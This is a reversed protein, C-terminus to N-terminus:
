FCDHSDAIAAVATALPDGGTLFSPLPDAPAGPAPPEPLAAPGTAHDGAPDDIGGAAVAPDFPDAPEALAFDFSDAPAAIDGGAEEGGAEGPPTEEGDERGEEAPAPDDPTEPTDGAPPGYRDAAERAKEEAEDLVEELKGRLRTATEEDDSLPLEPLDARMRAIDQLRDATAAALTGPEFVGEDDNRITAFAIARTVTVPKTAETGTIMLGFTENPELAFDGWWAVQVEQTMTVPRLSAFDGISPGPFTIQKTSGGPFPQSNFWRTAFGLYDDEDTGGAWLALDVTVGGEDLDVLETHTVSVEFTLTTVGIHGEDRFAEARDKLRVEIQM